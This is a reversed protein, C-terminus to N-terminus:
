PHVPYVDGNRECAADEHPAVMRRYFELKAAELAGIVAALDAFSTERGDVAEVELLYRLCAETLVYALQGPKRTWPVPRLADREGPTVYPM